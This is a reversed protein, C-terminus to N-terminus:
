KKHVKNMRETLDRARQLAGQGFFTTYERTKWSDLLGRGKRESYMVTVRGGLGARYTFYTQTHTTKTGKHSNVTVTM